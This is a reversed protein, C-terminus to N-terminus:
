KDWRQGCKRSAIITFDEGTVALDINSLLDEADEHHADSSTDKAENQSLNYDKIGLLGFVL